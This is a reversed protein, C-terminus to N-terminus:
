RRRRYDTEAKILDDELFEMEIAEIECDIAAIQDAAKALSEILNLRKARLVQLDNM